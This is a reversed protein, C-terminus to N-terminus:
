LQFLLAFLIGLWLFIGVFLLKQDRSQDDLGRQVEMLLVGSTLSTVAAGSVLLYAFSAPVTVDAMRGLIALGLVILSPILASFGFGGIFLRYWLPDGDRVSDISYGVALAIVPFVLAALKLQDSPTFNEPM